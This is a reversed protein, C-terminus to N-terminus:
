LARHMSSYKFGRAPRQAKSKEPTVIANAVAVVQAIEKREINGAQGRGHPRVILAKSLAAQQLYQVIHALAPGGEVGHNTTTIIGTNDAGAGTFTIHTDAGAFLHCTDTHGVALHASLQPEPVGQGQVRPLWRM